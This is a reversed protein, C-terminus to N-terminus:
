EETGGFIKNGFTVKFGKAVAAEIEPMLDASYVATNFALVASGATELQKCARLASIVSDKKLESCDVFSLDVSLTNPVFRVNKLKYCTKFIETTVTRSKCSSFDFDADIEELVAQRIFCQYFSTVKDTLNKLTIKKISSAPAYASLFCTDLKTVSSCDFSVETLTYNCRFFNSADTLNVTNLHPLIGKWKLNSTTDKSGFITPDLPSEAFLKDWAAVTRTKPNSEIAALIADADADDSLSTDLNNNMAYILEQRIENWDRIYTDGLPAGQEIVLPVTTSTKLLEGRFTDRAILGLEWEGAKATVDYPINRSVIDGERENLVIEGANEYEGPRCISLSYEINESGLGTWTEDLEVSIRDVGFAGSTIFASPQGHLCKDATRYILNSM